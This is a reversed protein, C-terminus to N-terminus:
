FKPLIQSTTASISWKELYASPQTPPHSAKQSAPQSIIIGSQLGDQLSLSALIESLSFNWSPGLTAFTYNAIFDINYM